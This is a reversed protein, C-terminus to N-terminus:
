GRRRIFRLKSFFLSGETLKGAHRGRNHRRVSRRATRAHRTPRQRPRLSSHPPAREALYRTLLRGAERNDNDLSALLPDDHWLSGSVITPVGSKALSSYLDPCSNAVIGLLNGSAKALRILDSAYEAANDVPVCNFQVAVGPFHERLAKIWCSYDNSRFDTDDPEIYHITDSLYKNGAPSGIFTGHNRRRYLMHSDALIKLARHATSISVDYAEAAETATFYRDGTSLGRSRIDEELTKALQQVRSTEFTASM